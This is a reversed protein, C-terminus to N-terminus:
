LQKLNIKSQTKSSVFINLKEFIHGKLGKFILILIEVSNNIM